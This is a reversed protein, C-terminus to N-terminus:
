SLTRVIEALLVDVDAAFNVQTRTPLSEKKRIRGHLHGDAINRASLELHRMSERFSRGGDYNNAVQAFSDVKFIPPVHDLLARTLTAVGFYCQSRYCINLEDCLAILKRLDFESPSLKRLDTLRAEDVFVLATSDKGTGRRPRKVVRGSRKGPARRPAPDARGTTAKPASSAQDPPPAPRDLLDKQTRLLEPTPDLSIGFAGKSHTTWLHGEELQALRHLDAVEVGLRLIDHSSFLARPMRYKWSWYLRAKFYSMAVDDSAQERRKWEQFRGSFAEIHAAGVGSPTFPPFGVQDLYDGIAAFAFQAFNSDRDRYSPLGFYEPTSMLSTGSFLVAVRSDEVFVPARATFNHGVADRNAIGRVGEFETLALPRRGDLSCIVTTEFAFAM